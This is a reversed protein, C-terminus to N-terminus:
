VACRCRASACDCRLACQTCAQNFDFEGVNVQTGAFVPLASGEVDGM